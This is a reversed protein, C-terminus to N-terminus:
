RPALPQTTKSREARISSITENPSLAESDLTLEIVSPGAHAIARQLAPAFDATTAVREAAAGCSRAWAVFDPNMLSTAVVRGPYRREQHMRITGLLGNNAVIVIIPLGFQVATMLEQSSMQLCGDGAIAVVTRSPCALKAAIAAPLGYGMSGSVPALQSPYTKYAFYRHLFAAYNGAGNCVIADAPLLESLVAVVQEMRVDGPTSKPRLSTEYAARLDRRWIGWPPRKGPLPLDALAAVAMIPSAPISVAAAIQCEPADADAAIHIIKQAGGGQLYVFGQTTVDGLRTGIAIILDSTKLGAALSADIAFGAHGAYCRHRNDIHDQRRFATVVPVDFREAFVALNHAAQASWESGGAVVLPREAFALASQIAELASAHPGASMPQLADAPTAAPAARSLIDEAIGIVVPGGRGATATRFARSVISELRDANPVTIVWKAISGFVAQLDIAQFATRGDQCSPPLGVLLIMPTADQHAVYVGAVANAAGPGRTVLAVGPRGTLKGTAEAMMAAGGETRCTVPRVRGAGHMADLAAIFSEGPVTFVHRVGEKGLRDILIEGGTPM